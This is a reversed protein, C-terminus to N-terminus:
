CCSQLPQVQTSLDMTVELSTLYEMNLLCDKMKSIVATATAGSSPMKRVFFMKSYMDAIVMYQVGNFDLLDSAVIQWPRDPTPQREPPLTCQKAQFRKCTTCTSIMKEIDKTMGPWYVVNKAWINTKIIGQHGDHLQKLVPTRKTEPILLAEGKLVLGDEM